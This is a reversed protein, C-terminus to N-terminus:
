GMEVISRRHEVYVIESSTGSSACSLLLGHDVVARRREGGRRWVSRHALCRRQGGRWVCGNAIHVVVLAEDVVFHDCCMRRWWHQRWRKHGTSVDNVRCRTLMMWMRMWVVMMMLMLTEIWRCIVLAQSQAEGVALAGGGVDVVLRMSCRMMVVTLMMMMMMM